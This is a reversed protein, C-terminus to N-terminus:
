VKLSMSLFCTDIEWNTIAKYFFSSSILSLGGFKFGLGEVGILVFILLNSSFALLGLMDLVELPILFDLSSGLTYNILFIKILGISFAPAVSLPDESM